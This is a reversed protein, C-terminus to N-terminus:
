EILYSMLKLWMGNNYTLLFHNREQIHHNYWCAMALIARLYSTHVLTHWCVTIIDHSYYMVEKFQGHMPKWLHWSMTSDVLRSSQLESNYINFVIWSAKFPGRKESKTNIISFSFKTYVSCFPVEIIFLIDLMVNNKYGCM